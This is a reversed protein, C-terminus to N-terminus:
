FAKESSSPNLILTRVRESAKPSFNSTGLTLTFGVVVPMWLLLALIQGFGVQNEIWTPGAVVSMTRRVRLIFGVDLWMLPVSLFSLFWAGYSAQEFCWEMLAPVREVYQRTLERLRERNLRRNTFLGSMFHLILWMGVLTTGNVFLPFAVLLSVAEVDSFLLRIRKKWEQKKSVGTASPETKWSVYTQFLKGFAKFTFAFFLLTRSIGGVVLFLVSYVVPNNVAAGGLQAQLCPEDGFQITIRASASFIVAFMSILQIWALLYYLSMWTTAFEPGEFSSLPFYIGLIILIYFAIFTANEAIVQEYYSNGGRVLLAFLAVSLSLALAIAGGFLAGLTNSEALRFPGGSRYSDPKCYRDTITKLLWYLLSITVLSAGMVYSVM